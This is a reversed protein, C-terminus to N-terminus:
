MGVDEHYKLTTNAVRASYRLAQTGMSELLFMCRWLDLLFPYQWRTHHSVDTM